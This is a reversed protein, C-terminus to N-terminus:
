CKKEKLEVLKKWPYKKIKFVDDVVKLVANDPIKINNKQKIKFKLYISYAGKDFILGHKSSLRFKGAHVLISKKIFGFGHCNEEIKMKIKPPEFENIFMLDDGCLDSGASNGIYLINNEVMNKIKDFQKYKKLKYILEFVNGGNMFICDIKDKFDYDPTLDIINSFIESLHSKAMQNYAVAEEDAYTCFLCNQTNIKMNMVDKNPMNYYDSYLLLKM